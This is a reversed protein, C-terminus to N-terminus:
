TERDHCTGEEGDGETAAIVAADRGSLGPGFASLVVCVTIV